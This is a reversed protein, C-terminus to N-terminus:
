SVADTMKALSILTKIMKRILRCIAADKVRPFALANYVRLVPIKKGVM